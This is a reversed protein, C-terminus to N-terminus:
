GVHLMYGLFGPPSVPYVRVVCLLRCSDRTLLWLSDSLPTWSNYQDGEERLSGTLRLNILGMVMFVSEIDGLEM